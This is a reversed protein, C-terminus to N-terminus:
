GAHVNGDANVRGLDKVLLADLGVGSWGDGDLVLEKSMERKVLLRLSNFM